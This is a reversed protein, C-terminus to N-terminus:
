KSYKETCAESFKGRDFSPNDEGFLDALKEILEDSSCLYDVRHSDYYTAESIIKAVAKYHQKTFM